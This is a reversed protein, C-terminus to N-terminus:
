AKDQILLQQQPASGLIKFALPDQNQSLLFQVAEEFSGQTEFAAHVPYDYSVDWVLLVGAQKSWRELTDKLSDDASASWMEGSNSQEDSNNESGSFGLMKTAKDAALAIKQLATEPQSNQQETGPDVINIRRIDRDRTVPQIQGATEFGSAPEIVDIPQVEIPSDIAPIETQPIQLASTEMSSIFVTKTGIQVKYNLDAIMDRIVENWPKGGSWSVRYGPNVNNGFSFAYGAPVVQRLALALPVDSGFGEVIEYAVPAGALPQPAAMFPASNQVGSSFLPEDQTVALDQPAPFSSIQLDKAARPADEPMIIKTNQGSRPPMKLAELSDPAASKAEPMMPEQAFSSPEPAPEAAYRPSEYSPTTAMRKIQAVPQPEQMPPLAPPQVQITQITKPRPASAPAVRPAESSELGPMPALPLRTVGQENTIPPPPVYGQQTPEIVQVRSSPASPAAPAPDQQGSPVWEFGARTSTASLGVVLLAFAILATKKHITRLYRLQAM